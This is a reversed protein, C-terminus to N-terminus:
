WIRYDLSLNEVRSTPVQRGQSLEAVRNGIYTQLESLMIEGNHNLDANNTQIGELLCYTFLGNKWEDSEMAYEAGGASSIVTAGTGRRLDNFMEKVAENTRQLGAAERYMTSTNASRFVIDGNDTTNLLAIEEMDDKDLEGSHCTDMILLKRIAMIGDFLVELEAYSIGYKEPNLFDMDYTCFYYDLDRNLVGHGAIFFVVIDDRNAQSLFERLALLNERTVQENVLVMKEVSKYYSNTGLTQSFDEADKAAYELNYLTDKYESVGVSVIFLRSENATTTNNISITEKLSEVGAENTVSVQIKNLGSMLDVSLTKSLTQSNEQSLDLGNRGYVPVDNIYIQLSKLQYLTDTANVTINMKGKFPPEFKLKLTPVNMSGSLADEDIGMRKLRKLYASHYLDIISSDIMGLNEMIIDPRNYKIDFQEFPYYKAAKTRGQNVHYGVYSAGKKSSAFYGEENWIVWENNTGVFLSVIPYIVKLVGIQDTRWIRITQDISGSILFQGDDSVALGRMDSEHGVLESVLEGNLDYANICGYAAGSVLYKENVFTQVMHYSGNTIDLKVKGTVVKGKKITLTTQDASVSFSRDDFSTVPYAISDAEEYPRLERSSLDFVTQFQSFGENKTWTNSFAILDGKMGVSQVQSGVGCLWHLLTSNKKNPEVKWIAVENNLGGATVCTNDNVFGACKVADTHKTFGSLTYWEKDREEYVRMLNSEVFKSSATVLLREGNPSFHLSSIDDDNHNFSYIENLKEDLIYVNNASAVAIRNGMPSVGLEDAALGQNALKKYTRVPSGNDSAKSADWMYVHGSSHATVMYGGCITLDEIDAPIATMQYSQNSTLDWVRVNGAADVSALFNTNDFFELDVITNYHGKYLRIQEGTSYRYIRIDGVPESGDNKGFWGGAALYKNDSSLSLSYIMGESGLGVQGFIQRELIGEKSNWIKISKDYGATIVKGDKDIALAQITSRHGEPNITLFKEGEQSFSHGALFLLFLCGIRMISTSIRGLSVFFYCARELTNGQYKTDASRSNKNKGLCRM